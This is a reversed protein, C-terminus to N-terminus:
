ISRRQPHFGLIGGAFCWRAIHFNLKELISEAHGTLEELAKWSDDPHVLQVLEVKKFQHQRIM